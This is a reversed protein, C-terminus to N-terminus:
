GSPDTPPCCVRQRNKVSVTTECTSTTRATARPLILLPNTSRPRFVRFRPSARETHFRVVLKRGYEDTKDPKSIRGVGIWALFTQSDIEQDHEDCALNEWRRALYISVPWDHRGSYDLARSGCVLEIKKSSLRFLRYEIFGGIFICIVYM